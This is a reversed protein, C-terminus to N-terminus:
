PTTVADRYASIMADLTWGEVIQKRANVGMTARDSENALLAVIGDVLALPDAAPSILGTEGPRVLLSVDGVDCAAVVLGCAQAELVTLPLGEVSSPLVFIDMAAYADVLEAHEAFKGFRKISFHRANRDFQHALPGDGVAFAAVPAKRMVSAVINIFSLPRKEESMRGVFGLVPAQEPLGFRARAARRQEASPPKFLTHDVGNRIVRIRASPVGHRELAAAARTSGAIHVTIADSAGVANGLHYTDNHLVDVIPSSPASQKVRSAIRHGFSSGSMLVAGGRRRIREIAFNGRADEHMLTPLHLIRSTHPEFEAQMAHTPSDSTTLIEIEHDRALDAAVDLLVRESGGIPLFPALMTLAKRGIPAGLAHDMWDTSPALPAAAGALHFAYLREFWIPSTYLRDHKTKIYATIEASREFASHTMTRGHRRHNFLPAPICFGRRGASALRLWFEWDEFGKTMTADYGGLASADDRRFVGVVAVNNHRRAAHLDFHQTRWLGDEDGFLRAHSYAFGLSHDSELAAICCELYTRDLTDDADLCCIFEGGAVALGANRAAPLGANAQRIITLSTDHALSDLLAITAPDSSGDDVIIVEVNGITQARASDIAEMLYRGYNFCPIIVSACRTASGDAVSFRPKLVINLDGDLMEFRADLARADTHRRLIASADRQMAVRKITRFSGLVGFRLVDIWKGREILGSLHTWRARWPDEHLSPALQAKM